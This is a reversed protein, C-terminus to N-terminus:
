ALTIEKKDFEDLWKKTNDELIKIDAILQKHLLSKVAEKSTGLIKYEHWGDTGYIFAETNLCDANLLYVGGGKIYFYREENPEYMINGNAPLTHDLPYEYIKNLWWIFVSDGCKLESFKKNM